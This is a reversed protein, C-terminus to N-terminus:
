KFVAVLLIQNAKSLKTRDVEELAKLMVKPHNMAVKGDELGSIEGDIHIYRGKSQPIPVLEDPDVNLLKAMKSIATKKKDQSLDNFSGEATPTNKYIKM